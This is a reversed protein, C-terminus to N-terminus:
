RPLSGGPKGDRDGDFPTILNRLRAAEATIRNVHPAVIIQVCVAGFLAGLIFTFALVILPDTNLTTM